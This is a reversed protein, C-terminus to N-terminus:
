HHVGFAALIEPLRAVIAAILAGAVLFWLDDVNKARKQTEERQKDIRAIETTIDIVTPTEM